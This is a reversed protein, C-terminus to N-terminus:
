PIPRTLGPWTLCAMIHLQVGDMRNVAFTLTQRIEIHDCCNIVGSSTGSSPILSKGELIYLYCASVRKRQSRGPAAGAWCSGGSFRRNGLPCSHIGTSIM